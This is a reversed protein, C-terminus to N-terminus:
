WYQRDGLLKCTWATALLVVWCWFIWMPLSPRRRRLLRAVPWAVSALFLAAMPATMPNWRLSEAMEGRLLQRASRVGGTTPCPLGTMSTFLSPPIAAQSLWYANWGAYVVLLGYAAVRLMGLVAEPLQLRRKSTTSIIM